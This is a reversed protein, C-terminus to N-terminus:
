ISWFRIKDSQNFFITVSLMHNRRCKGAFPDKFARRTNEFFTPIRKFLIGLHLTKGFVKKWMCSAIKPLFIRLSVCTSIAGFKDWSLRISKCRTLNLRFACGYNCSIGFRTKGFVKLCPNPFDNQCHFGRWVLHTIAGFKTCCGRTVESRTKRSGIM